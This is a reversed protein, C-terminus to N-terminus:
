RHRTRAPYMASLAALKEQKRAEIQEKHKRAREVNEDHLRKEQKAPLTHQYKDTM